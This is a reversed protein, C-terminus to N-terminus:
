SRDADKRHTSEADLQGFHVGTADGGQRIMVALIVAVTATVLGMALAYNGAFWGALSVLVNANASAFLNGLQHVVGPFTGRVLPPSLENLHVPVVGWAGQVLFQICFAGVAIPVTSTAFAWLPIVPISLLVATVIARRRGVYESYIGFILSGIIAGINYIVAIAGVAQPSFGRQERLMTPYLDQTGHSFLNFATMLVIAYVCLRWHDQLTARLSVKTKKQQGWVPSEQVKSRIFLVLLAPLAGVVFMGRWGVLPFLLGFALGALLYGSPSGAQLIGSVVGRARTPVTELTLSAGVGWEGGMAVGYLARLVLLVSLSPAFACALDVTSYLLVDAILAPRRGYRDAFLGFILAGLPRTALTLLLGVSVAAITAGFEVAVDRLVFVMIFFDFSDLAWGLYSALVASRQAPTLERLSFLFVM